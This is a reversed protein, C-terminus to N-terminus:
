FPIDDHFEDFGNGSEAGDNGSRDTPGTDDDFPPFLVIEGAVSINDNILITYGEARKHPFAVGIRTRFRREEGDVQRSSSTFAILRNDMPNSRNTSSLEGARLRRAQAAEDLGGGPAGYPNGQRGAPVPALTRPPKEDRTPPPSAPVVDAPRSIRSTAAGHFPRAASSGAGTHEGRKATRAVLRGGGRPCPHPIGTTADPLVPDAPGRGSGDPSRVAQVMAHLADGDVLRIPKNVAFRRADGTFDSSCVVIAQRADEAPLVRNVERVVKVGVRRSRWNKCQVLHLAGDQHLRIDVGGDPGPQENEVVRYGDRRFAEAVLAEFQRWSLARISDLNTQRDLLSRKRIRAIFSVVAALVFLGAFVLGLFGFVLSFIPAFANDAFLFPVGLSVLLQVLPALALNAWWPLLTLLQYLDDNKNAM